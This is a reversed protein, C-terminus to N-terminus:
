KKHIKGASSSHTDILKPNGMYYIDGASSARARLNETVTIRADGASSASIDAIKTELDFAKLDGASSLDAELENTVGRLTIDGSSSIRCKLNETEVKLTIDGSSSASLYLTETKITNEGSLDGASSATLEEVEKITVYVKKAKASRINAQSYVKLTNDKIETEIYEHLNDDAEVTISEKEGQTLYVDIGSSVHVKNFYAAKREKTVVNGSGKVNPRFQCFASTTLTVALVFTILKATKM